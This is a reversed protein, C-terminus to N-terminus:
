WREENIFKPKLKFDKLRDHEENHCQKCLPELNGQVFALEPFSKLEKKHHVHDALSVRGARKCRQCEHNHIRLSEARAERWEKSKYFYIIKGSKILERIRDPTMPITRLLEGM